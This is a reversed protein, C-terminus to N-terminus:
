PQKVFVEELLEGNLFTSKVDMHHVAWGEQAALALLLRISEMRAVPTFVEEFDVGQQQVHHLSFFVKSSLFPQRNLLFPIGLLSSVPDACLV